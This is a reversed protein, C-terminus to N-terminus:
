FLSSKYQIMARQMAKVNSKKRPILSPKKKRYEVPDKLGIITSKENM